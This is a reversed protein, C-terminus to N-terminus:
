IRAPSTGIIRKFLKSFYFADCFGVAEAAEKVSYGQETLLRYAHYIRQRNVYNTPTTNLEERFIANVHEPTLNFRTALDKRGANEYLHQDLYKLMAKTREWLRGAEGECANLLSLWITRALSSLLEDRWPSAGAFETIIQRFLVSISPQSRCGTIQEPRKLDEPPDLHVCSILGEKGAAERLVHETDPPILLCQDPRLVLTKSDEQYSFNGSEIYVLEYDLITRPGWRNGPNVPTLICINIEMAKRKNIKNNYMYEKKKGYIKHKKYM